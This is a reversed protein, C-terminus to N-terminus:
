KIEEYMNYETEKMGLSEYTRQAQLNNKEVYLRFGCVNSDESALTKVFSYLKRYIGQRRYSPLIYVSQIWWFVGNRWDSWEMTVMLSGVVEGGVDAVVYFGRSPNELLGNVGAQILEPVLVKNETEKAMAQNFHILNIADQKVALRVTLEDSM